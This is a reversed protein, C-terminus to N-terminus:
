RCVGRQYPSWAAWGQQDRIQSAIWLNVVPDFLDEPSYGFVGVWGPMVQM